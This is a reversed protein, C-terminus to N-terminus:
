LSFGGDVCLVQGTVFPSRCFYAVAEAVDEPTGIRGVPTQECLDRIDDDSLMSNMRTDIVGPAVCNVTIGSPGLEKALAKTLGIVSAKSASYATECSGGTVGWMSSINVIRGYGNPIMHKAAERCVLYTGSSNVSFIEELELLSMDQIQAIRAVGSCNVAVALEGVSSAEEVASVVQEEDTVDCPVAWAQLGESVLSRVLVEAADKGNNYGVAVKYGNRCLTRCIASGIGGSGGTVIATRM